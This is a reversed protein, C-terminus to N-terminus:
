KPGASIGAMLTVERQHNENAQRERGRWNLSSLPYRMFNAGPRSSRRGPKASPLATLWIKHEIAM